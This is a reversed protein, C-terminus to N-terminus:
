GIDLSFAKNVFKTFLAKKQTSAIPCWYFKKKGSASFPPSRKLPQETRKVDTSSLRETKTTVIKKRPTVVNFLHQGSVIAFMHLM